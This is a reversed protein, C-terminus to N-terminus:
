GTADAIGLDRYLFFDRLGGGKYDTDEPKVHSFKKVAALQNMVPEVKKPAIAITVFRGSNRCRRMTANASCQAIRFDRRGTRSRCNAEARTFASDPTRSDVSIVTPRRWTM